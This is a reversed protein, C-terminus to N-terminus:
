ENPEEPKGEACEVPAEQEEAKEDSPIDNEKEEVPERTSMDLGFPAKCFDNVSKIRDMFSKSKDNLRAAVVNCASKIGVAIGRKYQEMLKEEIMETVKAEEDKTM